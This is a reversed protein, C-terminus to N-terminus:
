VRDPPPFEPINVMSFPRHSMKECAIFVKALQEATLPFCLDLDFEYLQLLDKTGKVKLQNVKVTKGEPGIM